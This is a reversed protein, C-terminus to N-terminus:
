PLEEPSVGSPLIAGDRVYLPIQELPVLEVRTAPGDIVTGTWFQRWRGAPLYVTRATVALGSLVSTVPAVLLDPGFLYEDDAAVAQADDPYAFPLPRVIPLGDDITQRAAAAIYPVLREHLTAYRRYITVARDSVWWPPVPTQMIPSLAGLQTWRVYTAYGPPLLPIGCGSEGLDQRAGAYGGIDSGNFAFGSMSLSLLSRLAQTLGLEGLVSTNDAAWHGAWRASGNWGGRAFIAFDGDPREAEFADFIAEHYHDIYANHNLRNPLGNHWVSDDSLDEEGRDVKVGDVGRAILGELGDRWWAYAAPNTFDLHTDIGRTPYYTADNGDARTGTVTWGNTETRTQADGSVFPSLWVMFRVGKDHVERILADADDFRSADFDFSAKGADWPNDLWVAGLPIDRDQMGDVLAMVSETSTDSDQWVMPQWMWEPPTWQPRGVRATQAAVIQRPTGRYYVLDLTDNEITIRGADARENRRAFVIEGRADSDAALGWGCPCWFFSAAIENTSGERNAGPGHSIWLPLASGRLQVGSFREGGGFYRESDPSNWATSVADVGAAAPAYHLSLTGDGAFRLTLTAGLGDDTTVQVTATDGDVSVASAGTAYHWQANDRYALPKYSVEPLGPYAKDIGDQRDNFRAYDPNTQTVTGDDAADEVRTAGDADTWRLHWGDRTLEVQTTGDGIVFREADQSLELTSGGTGDGGTTTGGGDTAPSSGGGCAVLLLGLLAVPLRRPTTM